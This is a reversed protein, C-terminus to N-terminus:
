CVLLQLWLMTCNIRALCKTPELGMKEADIAITRIKASPAQQKNAIFQALGCGPLPSIQSAYKRVRLSDVTGTCEDDPLQYNNRRLLVIAEGTTDALITAHGNYLVTQVWPHLTTKWQSVPVQLVFRGKEDARPTFSYNEGRGVRVFVGAVPKGSVSDRVYGSVRFTEEPRQRRAGSSACGAVGGAVVLLLALFLSRTLPM